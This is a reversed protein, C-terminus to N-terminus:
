PFTIHTHSLYNRNWKPIFILYCAHLIGKDDMMMPFPLFSVFLSVLPQQSEYILCHTVVSFVFIGSVVKPAVILFNLVVPVTTSKGPLPLMHIKDGRPTLFITWSASRLVVTPSNCFKTSDQPWWTKLDGNLGTRWALLSNPLTALFFGKNPVVLLHLHRSNALRCQCMSQFQTSHDSSVLISSKPWACCHHIQCQFFSPYVSFLRM